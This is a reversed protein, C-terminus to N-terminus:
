GDNKGGPQISALLDIDCLMSVGTIEDDADNDQNTEVFYAQGCTHAKWPTEFVAKVFTAPIGLTRCMLRFLGESISLTGPSETTADSEYSIL